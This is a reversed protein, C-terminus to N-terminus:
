DQGKDSRAYGPMYVWGSDPVVEVSDPVPHDFLIQVNSPDTYDFHVYYRGGHTNPKNFLWDQTSGSHSFKAGAFSYDFDVVMSGKVNNHQATTIGITFRSFDDRAKQRRAVNTNVYRVWIAFGILVVISPIIKGWYIEKSDPKYIFGDLWKKFM